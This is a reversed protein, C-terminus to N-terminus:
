ASRRVSSAAKTFQKGEDGLEDPAIGCENCLHVIRTVQEESPGTELALSIMARLGKITLLRYEREVIFHTRALDEALACFQAPEIKSVLAKIFLDPIKAAAADHLKRCEDHFRKLFGAPEGCHMCKAM